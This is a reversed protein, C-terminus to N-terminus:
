NFSRKESNSIDLPTDFPSFTFENNICVEPDCNGLITVEEVQLEKEQGKGPSDMLRGTLRVSAGVALAKLPESQEANAHIVVAQLGKLTTGDNVVAFLM